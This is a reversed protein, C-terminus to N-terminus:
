VHSTDTRRREQASFGHMEAFSTVVDVIEPHVEHIPKRGGQGPAPGPRTHLQPTPGVPATPLSPSRVGSPEAAQLHDVCLLDDMIEADLVAEHLNLVVINSRRILILVPFLELLSMVCAHNYAWSREADKGIATLLEPLAMAATCDMARACATLDEKGLPGPFADADSEALNRLASEWDMRLGHLAMVRLTAAAPAPNHQLRLQSILITFRCSLDQRTKELLKFKVVAEKVLEAKMLATRSLRMSDANGSRLPLQISSAELLTEKLDRLQGTVNAELHKLKSARWTKQQLEHYEQRQRQVGAVTAATGFLAAMFIVNARIDPQLVLECEEESLEISKTLFEMALAHSRSEKSSLGSTRLEGSGSVPAPPGSTTNNPSARASTQSGTAAASTPRPMPRVFSNVIVSSGSVRDYEAATEIVADVSEKSSAKWAADALRKAEQLSAGRCSPQRIFANVFEEYLNAPRAYVKRPPCITGFLTTQRSM